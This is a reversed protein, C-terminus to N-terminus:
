KNKRREYLALLFFYLSSALFCFAFCALFIKVAFVVSYPGKKFFVGAVVISSLVVAEGVIQFIRKRINNM